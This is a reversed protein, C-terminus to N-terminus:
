PAPDEATRLGFVGPVDRAMVPQSKREPRGQGLRWDKGPGAGRHAQAERQLRLADPIDPGQATVAATQRRLNLRPAPRISRSPSTM